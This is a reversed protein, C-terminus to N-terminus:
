LSRESVGEDDDAFKIEEERNKSEESVEKITKEIEKKDPVSEGSEDYVGDISMGESPKEFSIDEENIESHSVTEEDAAEAISQKEEKVEQIEKEEAEEELDPM